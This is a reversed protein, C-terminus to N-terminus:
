LTTNLLRQYISEYAAASRAWSFDQRMGNRQLQRWIDPHDRFTWLARRLAQLMADATYERFCFGTASGDALTTPTCDTITDALGGVQRVVPVTGYRLSYLQNLGSPEFRSPMLFIDGAAELLHALPENFELAVRFRDPFHHQLQRLFQHYTPEGTGLIAWQLDWRLIEEATQQVLDLGKQEVLRSIMVILPTRPRYPWNWRQHLARRCEAKGAVVTEEDYHCPLNPDHRPDWQSYDVGNLIGVLKGRHERLVGELGCGFEPTQIEEAYRQSVTTVMDAFVIGAKLFNIKGYFELERWNFLSWDLGTLPMDWHWFLGQYALNHITLVTKPMPSSWRPGYIKKVYVPILGTQWDNVHIVDPWFALGGLGELVARSFFIFRSCNDAYDAMKGQPLRYQYLGAGSAPDDREYFEAHELFYIPIDCQPLTSRWWRGRVVRAGLPVQVVNDTPELASGGQRVCRYLPMALAVRHGRQAMARPLASLVDALGGTKAFPAIEPSIYLINM